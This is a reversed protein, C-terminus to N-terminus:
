NEEELEDIVKKLEEIELHYKEKNKIIHLFIPAIKNELVTKFFDNMANSTLKKKSMTPKYIWVPGLKERTLYDKEVLRDLMTKTTMYAYKKEKLSEEHINRATTRGLNWCIKLLEWERRTLGSISKSM